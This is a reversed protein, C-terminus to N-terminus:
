EVSKLSQAMDVKILKVHMPLTVAAAFVITMLASIVYSLPHIERGFMAMNIEASQVVFQALFEGLILGAGAGLVALILNERFIYTDVELDYFGLVKLTAIERVRETININTLNYLVIFALAGAAAIIVYIVMNLAEMMTSFNSRINGTFSVTLVYDNELLKEALRDNEESNLENKFYILNYEPKEGFVRFYEEETMYIYHYAYNEAVGIIKVESTKTESISVVANEGSKIGLLTAAKETIVAGEEIYFPEKSGRDQLIIIDELNITNNRNEPVCINVSVTKDGNKIDYQKQHFKIYGSGNESFVRGIEAEEQETMDSSVAALGTYSTIEGFQLKVVDGICDFLAFGTLLLATCGSIGVVTMLMRRKYRFINRISVKQSFGLRNWIFPIRELLVRKGNKPAKPRMLQSPREKLEGYCAFIVTATTSIVMVLAALVAITLDYPMEIVPIKYMIGYASIIVYPFLKMGFLLGFIAGLVTPILAYLMYKFIVSGNGYGLAKLTGIQLRNEEVMRQMTTFCVLAAVLIFFVPFVESISRIRDANEDYESYGSNDSRTFIYWKPNELEEIKRKADNIEEEAGGLKKWAESEADEYEKLGSFYDELGDEYKILGENWKEWQEAIEIKGDEIEKSGSNILELANKLEKEGEIRGNELEAEGQEFKTRGSVIEAEANELTVRTEELAAKNEDLVAKGEDLEEKVSNLVARSENLRIEAEDLKAKEIELREKTESEELQLVGAEYQEYALNLENKGQLYESEKQSLEEDAKEYESVNENYEKEAAQFLPLGDRYLALGLNYDAEAEELKLRNELLENKAERMQVNFESLANNYEDEADKLEAESKIIKEEANELEIKGGELETKAEELEKAADDLKKKAEELEALAESKKESFEAEAKAIEADADNIIEGFRTNRRNEGLKEIEKELLDIKEAYEEGYCQLDLLEDFSLYVETYYESDFCSEPVYVVSDIEGNGISTSGRSSKDIYLPSIYIGVVTFANNTLINDSTGATKLTIEKGLGSGNNFHASSIVCENENEPMRGEEIEIINLPLGNEPLSLVRAVSEKEDAEMIMDTFYAPYVTVGDLTGIAAADNGDFGITSVLKFDMLKQEDFYTDASLRMDPATARLGTFFSVGVAVIGFISIFRSMSSTIDRFSSKLLSKKIKRM